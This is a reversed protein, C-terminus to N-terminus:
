PRCYFIALMGPDKHTKRGLLAQDVMYPIWTNLLWSYYCPLILEPGVSKCIPLLIVAFWSNFMVWAKTCTVHHANM